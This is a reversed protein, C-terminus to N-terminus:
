DTLCKTGGFVVASFGLTSFCSFMDHNWVRLTGDSCDGLVFTLRWHWRWSRLWFWPCVAPRSGIRKLPSCSTEILPIKPVSAYLPLQPKMHTWKAWYSRSTEGMYECNKAYTGGYIKGIADRISSVLKGNGHACSIFRRKTTWEMNVGRITEPRATHPFFVHSLKGCPHAPTANYRHNYTDYQYYFIMYIYYIIYIYIYLKYYIYIYLIYIYLFDYIIM